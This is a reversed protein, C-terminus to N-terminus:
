SSKASENSIRFGLKPVEFKGIQAQQVQIKDQLANAAKLDAPDEPNALTRILIKFSSVHASEM